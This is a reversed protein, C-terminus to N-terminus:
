KSDHQLDYIAIKIRDRVQEPNGDFKGDSDRMSNIYEQLEETKEDIRKNKEDSDESYLAFERFARVRALVFPKDEKKVANTGKLWSILKHNARSKNCKVCCLAMNGYRTSGATDVEYHPSIPTIHEGTAQSPKGVGKTMPINCYCCKGGFFLVSAIYREKTMDNNVSTRLVRRMSNRGKRPAWRSAETMANVEEVIIESFEKLDIDKGLFKRLNVATEDDSRLYSEINDVPDDAFKEIREEDTMCREYKSYFDKIIKWDKEKFSASMDAASAELKEKSIVNGNQSSKIKKATIEDRSLTSFAEHEKATIEENYKQVVNNKLEEPTFTTHEGHPCHGLGRNEPKARCATIMGNKKNYGFVKGTM